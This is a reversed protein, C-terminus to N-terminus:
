QKRKFTIFIFPTKCVKLFWNNDQKHKLRKYLLDICIFSLPGDNDLEWKAITRKLANLFDQRFNRKNIKKM